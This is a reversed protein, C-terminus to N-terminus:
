FFFNDDPVSELRDLDIGSTILREIDTNVDNYFCAIDRCGQSADFNLLTKATEQQYTKMKEKESYIESHGIYAVKAGRYAPCHYVGLPSIVQRFFGIHCVRPQKRLASLEDGLLGVLNISPVIKIQGGTIQRASDISAKIRKITDGIYSSNKIPCASEISMREVPHEPLKVLCAKLSLYDFGNDKALCAAKPIEDINDPLEYGNFVMGRSCVIMSYGLSIKSNKEKIRRVQGLLNDLTDSKNYPRHIKQYTENNSADISFRVWDKEELKGAIDAIRSIRSGNSVIGLQLGRNKAYSTIEEFNHHLTPEGGGILIISKLGNNCLTEITKIVNERSIREKFNLVESDVCFACRHNCATTIDFNVSLLPINPLSGNEGASNSRLERQWQIYDKLYEIISEQRLKRGFDHIGEKKIETEAKESSM